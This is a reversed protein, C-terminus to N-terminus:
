SNFTCVKGFPIEATGISPTGVLVWIVDYPPKTFNSWSQPQGDTLFLLVDPKPLHEEIYRFVPAYNTGGFVKEFRLQQVNRLQEIPMVNRREINTDFPIIYSDHMPRKSLSCITQVNGLFIQSLHMGISGSFDLATHVRIDLSGKSIPRMGPTYTQTRKYNPFAWTVKYNGARFYRALVTKYDALQVTKDITLADSFSGQLFGAANTLRVRVELINGAREKEDSTMTKLDALTKDKEFLDKFKQVMTLATKNKEYWYYYLPAINLEAAADAQLHASQVLSKCTTYAEIDPIQGFKMNEALMWAEIEMVATALWYALELVGVYDLKLEKAHRHVIMNATEKIKRPKYHLIVHSLEHAYMMKLHKIDYTNLTTDTFYIAQGNTRALWSTGEGKEEFPLYYQGLLKILSAEPSLLIIGRLQELREKGKVADQTNM